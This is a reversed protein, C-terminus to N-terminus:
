PIMGTLITIDGQQTGALNFFVDPGIISPFRVTGPGRWANVNGAAQRWCVDVRASATWEIGETRLWLVGSQEVV